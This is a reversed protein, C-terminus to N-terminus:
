LAYYLALVSHKIEPSFKGSFVRTRNHLITIYRTYSRVTPGVLSQVTLDSPEFKRPKWGQFFTVNGWFFDLISIDQLFNGGSLREVENREESHCMSGTLPMMYLYLIIAVWFHTRHGSRSSVRLCCQSTLTASSCLAAASGSQSGNRINASCSLM